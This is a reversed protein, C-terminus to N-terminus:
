CLIRRFVFTLIIIVFNTNLEHFTVEPYSVSSTSPLLASSQPFQDYSSTPAPHHYQSQTQYHYGPPPRTIDPLHLPAGLVPVGSSALSIISPKGASVSRKLSSVTSSNISSSAASALRHEEITPIQRPVNNNNHCLISGAGKLTGAEYQRLLEEKLKERQESETDKMLSSM